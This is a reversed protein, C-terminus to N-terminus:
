TMTDLLATAKELRNSHKGASDTNASNSGVEDAWVDLGVTQPRM